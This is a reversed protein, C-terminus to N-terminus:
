SNALLPTRKCVAAARETWAASYVYIGKEESNQKTRFEV